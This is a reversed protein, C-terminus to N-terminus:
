RSVAWPIEKRDHLFKGTLTQPADLALWVIVDAGEEVSRPAFKTGLRTRVWGPHAANIAFKPLTAALQVTIANLMTKSLCYAAFRRNNGESLQGGESSINIIRPEVSRSLLPVFARTVRRAGLSNTELLRQVTVDAVTLINTDHADVIGANNILVDLHQGTAQFARAAATVSAENLVDLELFKAKEGLTEATERGAAADRAGIFVQCDRAVLQRAVERGIGRNAGTVLVTKM